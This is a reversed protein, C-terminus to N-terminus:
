EGKMVNIIDEYTPDEVFLPVELGKPKRIKTVFYPNPGIRLCYSTIEKTIKKGRVVKSAKRLRIFTNGIISVSANLISAVSKMVSPGVEPVLQSDSSSDDEDFSSTKEQAIFVLEVPLDRFNIIQEKMMNSAAGWDRKTLTGWDGLNVATSNKLKELVLQQLQTVTDFVVTKYKGPNNKVHYYVQDVKDWHDIEVVFIDGKDDVISDTGKDRIDLYLIPRPFTASFTTKGSGSRGYIAWSRTPNFETLPKIGLEDDDHSKTKRKSITLRKM